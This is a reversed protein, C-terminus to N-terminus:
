VPMDRSPLSRPVEGKLGASQHPARCSFLLLSEDVARPPAANDILLAIKLAGILDMIAARYDAFTPSCMLVANVRRRGLNDDPDEETSVPM